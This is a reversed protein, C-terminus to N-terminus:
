PEFRRVRYFPKFATEKGLANVRDAFAQAEEETDWVMVGLGKNAYHHGNKIQTVVCWEIM